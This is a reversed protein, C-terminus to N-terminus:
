TGVDLWVKRQMWPLNGLVGRWEGWMGGNGDLKNLECVAIISEGVLGGCAFVVFVVGKNEVELFKTPIAKWWDRDTLRLGGGKHTTTRTLAYPECMSM